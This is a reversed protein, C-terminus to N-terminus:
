PTRAFPEWRPASSERAVAPAPAAPPRAIFMAYRDTAGPRSDYCTDAIVPKGAAILESVTVFRYGQSRLRPLAIPLAAATNHGRGNAHVLVISGPRVRKVIQEAIAPASQTPSADGTSVDWQIAVLGNSAVAELAAPNCAGYPFRFLGLRPQALSVQAGGGTTCQVGALSTRGAEYAAQPGRIEETLAGGSLGRLNRHAWAHNGIEFLPDTMLQRTREAHSLMWKGGAFFTAKIGERRLFDVIAGDYGAVEGPQECLDLTLAVLKLGKPLDVRRIAGRM